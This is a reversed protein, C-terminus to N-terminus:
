EGNWINRGLTFRALIFSSKLADSSLHKINQPLNNFITIGSYSAGKEVKTLKYNPHHLDSGQRTHINHIDSHLIFIDMNKVVFV